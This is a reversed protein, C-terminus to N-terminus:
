SWNPPSTIATTHFGAAKTALGILSVLMMLSEMGIKNDFSFKVNQQYNVLQETKLKILVDYDDM